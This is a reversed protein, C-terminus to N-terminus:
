GEQNDGTLQMEYKSNQVALDANHRVIASRMREAHDIDQCFIITKAYRDYGKLFESVKKAVVDTREDIVLKRDYDKTNYIRDEVLIGEKDRKNREPRWGELDVNLGVRVVRYPALFGDQIGQRLSYTYIPDGFYESNSADTTEKPTATLGLQSASTFYSLVERGASDAKASGRHCEDM